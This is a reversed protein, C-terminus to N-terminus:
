FKPANETSCPADFHFCARLRGTGVDLSHSADGPVEEEWGAAVMVPAQLRFVQERDMRSLASGCLMNALERVVDEVQRPALSDADEALFDAAISRAAEPAIAVTLSGSPSGEFEVRAAVPGPGGAEPPAGEEMPTVFFMEELVAGM